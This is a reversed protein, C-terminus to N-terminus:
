TNCAGQAVKNENRVGTKERKKKDPIGIQFAKAHM